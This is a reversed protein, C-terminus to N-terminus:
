KRPLAEFDIQPQDSKTSERVFANGPQGTEDFFGCNRLFFHPGRSGGTFDLRHRGRGTADVSFRARTCEHWQGNTDCVWVNGYNATRELHGQSPSFSELFSHFGTLHTDTKPRRFSAILKWDKTSKEGFWSTYITNGKGDPKVHTLFRYTKGAHWPYVLFSQGGSGENGFKGVHVDQGHGLDTIRQDKPIDRPNDTKFPSWVSFLIRRETPSNVQFGFYGQGFGNAMYFTGIPDDGKPVAIETYAYSLDRNRPVEYRLHVSPGRRGWYFMNGKNNRVFDVKLGDTSSDVVLEKVVAVGQTTRVNVRVYGAKSVSAQGLSYRAQKDGGVETILLTEAILGEVKAPPGQSRGIISLTLEAPRDVKFFVSYSDKSSKMLVNGGPFRSSTSPSTPFANGALPISWESAFSKAGLVAMTMFLAVGLRCATRCNANGM